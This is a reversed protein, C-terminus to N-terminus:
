DDGEEIMTLGANRNVREIVEDTSLEPEPPKPDIIESYKKEYYSGGYQGGNKAILRLTDAVYQRFVNDESQKRMVLYIYEDGILELKEFDCAIVASKYAEPATICNYFFPHM